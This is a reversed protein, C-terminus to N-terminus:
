NPRTSANGITAIAQRVGSLVDELRELFKPMRRNLNAAEALVLKMQNLTEHIEILMPTSDRVPPNNRNLSEQVLGKLAVVEASLRTVETNTNTNTNGIVAGLMAILAWVPHNDDLASIGALEDILQRQNVDALQELANDKM